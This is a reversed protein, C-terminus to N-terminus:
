HRGQRLAKVPQNAGSAHRQSPGCYSLKLNEETRVIQSDHARKKTEDYHTFKILNNRHSSLNNRQSSVNCNSQGRRVSIKAITLLLKTCSFHM